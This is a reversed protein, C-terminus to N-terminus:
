NQNARAKAKANAKANANTQKKFHALLLRLGRRNLRAYPSIEKTESREEVVERYRLPSVAIKAPPTIIM